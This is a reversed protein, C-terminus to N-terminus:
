LFYVIFLLFYVIILLCVKFSDNGLKIMSQFNIQSEYQKIMFRMEEEINVCCHKKIKFVRIQSNKLSLKVTSKDPLLLLYQYQINIKNNKNKIRKQYIQIPKVQVFTDNILYEITWEYTLEKLTEEGQTKLQQLVYEVNIKKIYNKTRPIDDVLKLINKSYQKFSQRNILNCYEILAEM